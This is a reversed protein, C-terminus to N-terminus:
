KTQSIFKQCLSEGQLEWKKVSLLSKGFGESQITKLIFRHVTSSKFAGLDNLMNIFRPELIISLGENKIVDRLISPLSDGSYSQEEYIKSEFIDTSSSDNSNTEKVFKPKENNIQVNSILNLGYGIAEFVDKIDSQKYSTKDAFLDRLFYIGIDKDAPELLLLGEDFRLSQISKIIQKYEPHAAFVRRRTLLKIFDPSSIIGVGEKEMVKKVAERIDM